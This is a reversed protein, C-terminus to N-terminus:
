QWRISHGFGYPIEDHPFGESPPENGEAEVDQGTANAVGGEIAAVEQEARQAEVATTKRRPRNSRRNSM